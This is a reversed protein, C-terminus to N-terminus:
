ARLYENYAAKAAMFSRGKYLPRDAEGKRSILVLFNSGTTHKLTLTRRPATLNTSDVVHQDPYKPM